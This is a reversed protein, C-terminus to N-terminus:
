SIIEEVNGEFVRSDFYKEFVERGKKGVEYLHERNGEVEVIKKALADVDESYFTFGNKGDQIYNAIGCVNSCLCPVSNMMAEVVVTPLPDLRSPVILLDTEAIIKLMKDHPQFPMIRINKSNQASRFLM